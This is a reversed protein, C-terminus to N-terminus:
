RFPYTPNERHRAAEGASLGAVFRVLDPAPPGYSVIRVDLDVSACDAVARGMARMIWEKDNGFAGGGLLTLLVVNSGGASAAVAAELLTAEYAAELVLMAFGRWLPAPLRSYAVPLASCFAQSVVHGRQAGPETVEVGRQVGIRLLGRLEDAAADDLGSLHASITELGSRTCLVYGNRMEWLGTVARGTAEGLATGVDALGDLQRDRTQGSEGGVPAFFNRYILAPAAAMACAPGQTRDYQYRTVGDEPAVDPGVMELANFQSAVQFLAGAFESAAHLKRIDGQVIAVRPKGSPPGALLFRRRLDALSVMELDGVAWSRGNARSSIRGGEDVFGNRTEEYSRERFGFLGEFWDM